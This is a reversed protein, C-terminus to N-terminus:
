LWISSYKHAPFCCQGGVAHCFPFALEWQPHFPETPGWFFLSKTSITTNKQCCMCYNDTCLITDFSYWFCNQTIACMNEYNHVSHSSLPTYILVIFLFLATTCHLLHTVRHFHPHGSYDMLSKSNICPQLRKVNKKRLM